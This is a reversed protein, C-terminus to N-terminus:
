TKSELFKQASYIKISIELHLKELPIKESINHDILFLRRPKNFQLTRVVFYCEALVDANNFARPPIAKICPYLVFVLLSICNEAFFRLINVQPNLIVSQDPKVPITAGHVLSSLRAVLASYSMVCNNLIIEISFLFLHVQYVANVVM